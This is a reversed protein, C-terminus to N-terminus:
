SERSVQRQFEAIAAPNGWYRNTQIKVSLGELEQSFSFERITRINVGIISCLQLSSFLEDKPAAMLFTKIKIETPSVRRLSLPKGDLKLQVAQKQAM